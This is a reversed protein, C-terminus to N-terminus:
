HSGVQIPRDGINAVEIDIGEREQNLIIDADGVLVEGPIM